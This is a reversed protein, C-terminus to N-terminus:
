AFRRRFRVLGIGFFLASLALMVATTPLVDGAGGGELLVQWGRVAWGQPVLLSITSFAEPSAGPVNMTFIGIMGVMGAVTLVGGYVIGAQRTDRLLSTVFLGFSAALLIMGLTVLGAPLPQGWDIGFILASAVLLVVVQAILTALTAILRGGLIASLRTPTTFLRPLTGLEEEQLLSQASAAGTFFIYFVLMGAM